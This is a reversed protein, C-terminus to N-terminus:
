AALRETRSAPQPLRGGRTMADIYAVADRQSLNRHVVPGNETHETLTWTRQTRVPKEAAPTKTPTPFTLTAAMFEGYARDFAGLTVTTAGLVHAETRDSV